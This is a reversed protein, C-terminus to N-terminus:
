YGYVIEINYLQCPFDMKLCDAAPYRKFNNNQIIAGAKGEPLFVANNTVPLIHPIFFEGRIDAPRPNPVFHGTHCTKGPKKKKIAIRLDHARIIDNGVKGPTFLLNHNATSPGIVFSLGCIRSVAESPNIAPHPFLFGSRVAIASGPIGKHGIIKDYGSRDKVSHSEIFANM